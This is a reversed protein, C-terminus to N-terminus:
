LGVRKKRLQKEINIIQRLSSELHRRTKVVDNILQTLNNNNSSLIKYGKPVKPQMEKGCKLVRPYAKFKFIEGNNEKLVHYTQM